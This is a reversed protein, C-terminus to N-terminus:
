LPATKVIKQRQYQWRREHFKRCAAIERLDPIPIAHGRKSYRVLGLVGFVDEVFKRLDDDPSTPGV